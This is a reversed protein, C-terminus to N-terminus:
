RYLEYKEIYKAVEPPVDDTRDLVDDEGVDERIATASIDMWVADTFYISTEFKGDHVNKGGRIDIIRERVNETVHETALEYGPRSVVIHNTLMLLREWDQWTTIDSWSDAGMVFYIDNGANELKLQSLTDISYRKEGTELEVDTASIKPEDATALCLMSYRHFASTPKTDPKHPAHFAPVFIFKDLDFLEVLRKAITLHGCHVPDFTGGYFAIRKM